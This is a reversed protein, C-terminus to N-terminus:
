GAGPSGGGFQQSLEDPNVGYKELLAADSETDLKDPLEKDAEDAKEAGSRSRIQEVVMAKSIEAMDRGEKRTCGGNGPYPSSDKWAV